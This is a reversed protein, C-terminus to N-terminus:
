TEVSSRMLMKSGAETQTLKEFGVGKVRYTNGGWTIFDGASLSPLRYDLLELTDSDEPEVRNFFRFIADNVAEENEPDNWDAPVQLWRLLVDGSWQAGHRPGTVAAMLSFIEIKM